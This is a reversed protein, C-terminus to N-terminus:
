LRAELRLLTHHRGPHACARDPLHVRAPPQGTGGPKQRVASAGPRGGACSPLCRQAPVELHCTAVAAAFSQPPLCLSRNGVQKSAAALIKRLQLQVATAAFDIWADIVGARHRKEDDFPPLPYLSSESTVAIYRAVANEQNISEAGVRYEVATSLAEDAKASLEQGAFKAALRAKAVAADPSLKPNSILEQYLM